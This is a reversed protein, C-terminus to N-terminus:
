GHLDCFDVGLLANHLDPEELFVSGVGDLVEDVERVLAKIIAEGKVADYGVEHDLAAAGVAVARPPRAVFDVAFEGAIVLVMVAAYKGHGVRAAVGAAGLEEDAVVAVVGFVEVAVVGTKTLHIFSQFDNVLDSRPINHLFHHNGFLVLSSISWDGEFSKFIQFNSSKFIPENFVTM